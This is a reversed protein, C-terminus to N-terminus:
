LSEENSCFPLDSLPDNEMVVDREQTGRTNLFVPSVHVFAFQDEPSSFFFFCCINCTFM